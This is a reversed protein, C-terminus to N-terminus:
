TEWYRCGTCPDDSMCLEQSICRGKSNKTEEKHIVIKFVMVDKEDELISIPVLIKAIVKSYMYYKVAIELEDKTFKTLQGILMPVFGYQAHLMEGLDNKFYIRIIDGVKLENIDNIYIIETSM